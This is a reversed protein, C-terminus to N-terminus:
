AEPKDKLAKRALLGKRLLFIGAAISGARKIFTWVGGAIVLVGIWPAFTLFTKFFGSPPITATAQIDAPHYTVDIKEGKMYPCPKESVNSHVAYSTGDVVLEAVPSCNGKADVQVNVVTAQAHLTGARPEANHLPMGPTLCLILWIVGFVITGIAGGIGQRQEGFGVVGDAILAGGAATTGNARVNPDGMYKKATGVFAEPAWPHSSQGGTGAYQEAPQAVAPVQAAVPVAEQTPPLPQKHATWGNGDWYGMMGPENALPYWGPAASM